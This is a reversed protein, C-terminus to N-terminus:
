EKNNSNNNSTHALEGLNLVNGKTQLKRGLYGALSVIFFQLASSFAEKISAFTADTIVFYESVKAIFVLLMVLISISCLGSSVVVLTATISGRGTQPDRVMPVPIGHQNMHNIFKKWAELLNM